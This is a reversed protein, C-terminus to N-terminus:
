KSNDTAHINEQPMNSTLSPEHTLNLTRHITGDFHMSTKFPRDQAATILCQGVTDTQLMELFIRTRKEDLNGFLDDLLLIPPAGLKEQLYFYQALKLAMGFTQHQGQSAYRRVELDNLRFVLEDRHPGILTRGGERERQSAQEIKQRFLNAIAAEDQEPELSGITQYKMWPHEGVEAIQRYAEQLYDSFTATFRLREVIIKSGLQVLEENWSRLVDTPPNRMRRYQMLLVNRQKLARRYKMMNDLYVPKAQSLINNLFRRRVEPGDATIAHDSPAFVVVPITGVIHSLRDLPAKNVFIRKGEEPVYAMRVLLTKRHMGSFTGNIEFFRTGKRLAYQDNSVLFSKSLALYHIAELINTKGIGNPGHILNVKPGFELTTDSHARFSILRLQHLIM